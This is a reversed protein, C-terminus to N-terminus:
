GKKYVSLGAFSQYTPMIEIMNVNMREPVTAVWHVTEAIDEPTLPETGKYVNAAKADDGHFRVNSFETGGALGPAVDTVRVRTGALDARLNLAFQRVFAKTGGYTNGGLYPWEAATSGIMVVHGRNREAMGPLVARTVYMLGKINTDVMQDWDDLSARQAPEIGLALGANNVLLDIEAFEKPLGAIAKAVAERDRVDFTLLHAKSPGGLEKQLNELRDKRRGTIILKAGDKAFRKAIAVGFGASAGTVMVIM